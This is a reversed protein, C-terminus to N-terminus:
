PAGGLLSLQPGTGGLMACTGARRDRQGPPWVFWAYEAADTKGDGTFSPRAPLAYIDPAHQRLWAARSPAFWNTRQLMAVWRARLFAVEVFAQAHSFPPNMLCVEALPEDWDRIVFDGFPLLVDVSPRALSRLTSEHRTDIECLTWAVDGRHTNVTSPIRGTGACPDLWGGGPLRLLPSELLSLIAERPTPYFEFAAVETPAVPEVLLADSAVYAKRRGRASM